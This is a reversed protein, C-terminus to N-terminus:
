KVSNKQINELKQFYFKLKQPFHEFIKKRSISKNSKMLKKPRSKKLNEPGSHLGRRIEDERNM